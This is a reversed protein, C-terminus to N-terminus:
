ASFVGASDLPIQFPPHLSQMVSNQSPILSSNDTNFRFNITESSYGILTIIM